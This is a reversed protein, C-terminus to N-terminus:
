IGGRCLKKGVVSGSIGTNTPVPFLVPTTNSDEAWANPLSMLGLGGLSLSGLFKRRDM